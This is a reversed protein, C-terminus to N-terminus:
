SAIGRSPHTHTHTTPAGRCHWITGLAGDRPARTAGAARARPGRGVVCWHWAWLAIDRASDVGGLFFRTTGVFGTSSRGFAFGYGVTVFAVAGLAADLLNKLLINSVNRSRVSGAELMAFGAQEWFVLATCILIWGVDVATSLDDDDSMSSVIARM